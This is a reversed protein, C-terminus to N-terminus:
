NRHYVVFFDTIFKNISKLLVKVILDPFAYLEVSFRTSLTIYPSMYNLDLALARKRSPSSNSQLRVYKYGRSYSCASSAEPTHFSYSIAKIRLSSPWVAM